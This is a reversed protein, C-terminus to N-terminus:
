QYQSSLIDDKKKQLAAIQTAAYSAMGPTKAVNQMATIQQDLNFLDTSQKTTLGPIAASYQALSAPFTATTVSTIKPIIQDDPVVVGSAAYDWGYLLSPTLTNAQAMSYQQQQIAKATAADLFTVTDVQNGGTVGCATTGAAYADGFATGSDIWRSCVAADGCIKPNTILKGNVDTTYSTDLCGFADPTTTQKSTNLSDLISNFNPNNNTGGYALDLATSQQIKSSVTAQTQAAFDVCSQPETQGSVAMQGANILGVIPIFSSTVLKVKDTACTAGSVTTNAEADAKSSSYLYYLGGGVVLAAGGFYVLQSDM